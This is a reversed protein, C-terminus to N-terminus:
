KTYNDMLFSEYDIVPEDESDSIIKLDEDSEDNYHLQPRDIHVRPVEKFSEPPM